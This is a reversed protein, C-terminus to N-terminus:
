RRKKEEIRQIAARGNALCRRRLFNRNVSRGRKKGKGDVLLSPEKGRGGEVASDTKIERKHTSSL